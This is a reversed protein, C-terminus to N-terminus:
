LQAEATSTTSSPLTVRELARFTVMYQARSRTQYPFTRKNERHEIMTVSQRSTGVEAVSHPGGLVVLPRLPAWTRKLSARDQELGNTGILACASLRGLNEVTVEDVTVDFSM